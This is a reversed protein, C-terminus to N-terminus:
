RPKPWASTTPRAGPLAAAALGAPDGDSPPHGGCGEAKRHIRVHVGPVDPRRPAAPCTPAVPDRRRGTRGAGGPRGALDVDRRARGAHDDDAEATVVVVQPAVDDLMFQKRAQPYGSRHPFYGAGAKMIAVLAVVLDIGRRTSMGVLSGPGSVTSPWCRRWTTRVAICRLIIWTQDGCRVAIRDPGWAPQGRATGAHHPAPRGAVRDGRSRALVQEARCRGLRDASTGCRRTPTPPSRRSSRALWDALARDHGAPVARHPLHRPRRYGDPRRAFFNVSLDAHAVDFTPDLATFRTEAAPTRGRDGSRRAAARPRARRGPVAPQAVAIAGPQGRRGGQRVASGPQRLRGAGDRPRAAAAERLTPNGTLDNRLVLINVFFGVLQDM